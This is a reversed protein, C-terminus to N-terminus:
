TLVREPDCIKVRHEDNVFADWHSSSSGILRPSRLFSSKYESLLPALVPLLVRNNKQLRTFITGNRVELAKLRELLLKTKEKGEDASSGESRSDEDVVMHRDELAEKHKREEESLKEQLLFSNNSEIVEM